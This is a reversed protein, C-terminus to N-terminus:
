LSETKQRTISFPPDTSTKPGDIAALTVTIPYVGRNWPESSQPSLRVGRLDRRGVNVGPDLISISAPRSDGTGTRGSWDAM